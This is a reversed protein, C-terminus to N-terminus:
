LQLQLDFCIWFLTHISFECAPTQLPRGVHLPLTSTHISLTIPVSQVPVYSYLKDSPLPAFTAHFLATYLFHVATVNVLVFSACLLVGCRNSIDQCQPESIGKIIHLRFWNKRFFFSHVTTIEFHHPTATINIMSRARVNGESYHLSCM